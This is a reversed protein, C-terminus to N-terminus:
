MQKIITLIQILIHIAHKLIMNLTAILGLSYLIKNFNFQDGLVM